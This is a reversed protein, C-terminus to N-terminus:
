VVLLNVGAVRGTAIFLVATRLAAIWGGIELQTSEIDLRVFSHREDPLDNDGSPDEVDRQAADAYVGACACERASRAATGDM